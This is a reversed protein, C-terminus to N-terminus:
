RPHENANSCHFMMGYRQEIEEVTALEPNGGTPNDTKLERGPTSSEQVFSKKNNSCTRILSDGM